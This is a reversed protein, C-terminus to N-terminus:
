GSGGELSLSTKKGGKGNSIVFQSRLFDFEGQNLQFIFGSLFQDINWKAAKKCNKSKRATLTSKDVEPSPVSPVNVVRNPVGSNSSTTGKALPMPPDISDKKPRGRALEARQEQRVKFFKGKTAPEQRTKWHAMQAM